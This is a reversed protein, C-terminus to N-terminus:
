NHQNPKRPKKKSFRQKLDEYILKATPVGKASAERVQGYYLLAEQL